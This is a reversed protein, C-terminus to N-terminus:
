NEYTPDAITLDLGVGDTFSKALGTLYAHAAIQPSLVAEIVSWTHTGIYVEDEGAAWAEVAARAEHDETHNLHVQELRARVAGRARGADPLAPGISSHLVPTGITIHTEITHWTM